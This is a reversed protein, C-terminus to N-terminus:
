CATKRPRRASCLERTGAIADQAEVRDREDAGSESGLGGVSGEASVEGQQRAPREQPRACSQNPQGLGCTRPPWQQSM